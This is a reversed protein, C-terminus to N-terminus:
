CRSVWGILPPTSGAIGGIVINQPNSRKLWITYIIMSCCQFSRCFAAKWSYFLFSSGSIAIILGFILAGGASHSGIAGTSETNQAYAPRHRCSGCTLRM